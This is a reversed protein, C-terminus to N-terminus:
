EEREIKEVYRAYEAPMELEPPDALKWALPDTQAAVQDLMTQISLIEQRCYVAGEEEGAAQYREAGTALIEFYGIYEELSYRALSIAQQKITIARSFDGRECAALAKADWAPVAYANQSLIRDAWREKEEMQDAQDLLKLHSWTNWPYITAALQHCGFGTLASSVGIYLCGTGLLVSPSVALIAPVSVTHKRDDEWDLCLLLVFYMSVFALDCDIMGHLTWTLLVIRCLGSANQSRFTRVVASLVLLAPIWGIDLLIQLFDNQVWQVSYHGTQFSGQTFYYGLYGQGLPHSLIVPVADKWYLLREWWLSAWDSIELIQGAAQFLGLLLVVCCAAQKWRSFHSVKEWLCIEIGLLLFCAFTGPAQFFGPLLDGKEFGAGLSLCQQWAALLTMVAGIWPIDTLIRRREEPSLQAICLAALLVPLYRVAGWVAMGSDVAWTFSFLHFSSIGGAALFARSRPWVLKGQKRKWLFLGIWYLSIGACAPVAYLGTLFFSLGFGARFLLLFRKRVEESMIESQQGVAM